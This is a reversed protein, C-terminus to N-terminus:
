RNGGPGLHGNAMLWPRPPSPVCPHHNGWVWRPPPTHARCPSTRSTCSSPRAAERAAEARRPTAALVPHPGIQPRAWWKRLQHLSLKLWLAGEPCASEGRRRAPLPAGPASLSLAASAQSQASQRPSPICPTWSSAQGGRVWVTRREPPDEGWTIM